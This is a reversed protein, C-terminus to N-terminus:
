PRSPPLVADPDSDVVRDGKAGARASAAAPRSVRSDPRGARAELTRRRSRRSAKHRETAGAEGARVHSGRVAQAHRAEIPHEEVGAPAAVPIAAPESASVVRAHAGQPDDVPAEARAPLGGTSPSPSPAAASADAGSPQTVAPVPATATGTLAPAPPTEPTPTPTPTPNTTPDTTAAPTPAANPTPGPVPMAPTATTTAVAHPKARRSARYRPVVIAIVAVVAVAAAFLVIALRPGRMVPKPMVFEATFRPRRQSQSMTSLEGSYSGGSADDANGAGFGGPPRTMHQSDLHRRIEEAVDPVGILTSSFNSKKKQPSSVKAEARATEAPPRAGSAAMAPSPMARSAVAATASDAGSAPPAASALTQHGVAPSDKRGSRSQALLAAIRGSGPTLRKPRPANPDRAAEAIANDDADIADLPSNDVATVEPGDFSVSPSSSDEAVVPAVPVGSSDALRGAEANPSAFRGTRAGSESVTESPHVVGSEDADGAPDVVRKSTDDVLAPEVTGPAAGVPALRASAVPADAVATGNTDRSNAGDVVESERAGNPGAGGPRRGMM